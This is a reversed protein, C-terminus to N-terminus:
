PKPREGNHPTGFDSYDVKWGKAALYRDLFGHEESLAIYIENYASAFALVEERLRKVADISTAVTSSPNTVVYGKEFNEDMLFSGQSIHQWIVWYHDLHSRVELLVQCSNAISHLRLHGAKHLFKITKGPGYNARYDKQPDYIPQKCVVVMMLNCLATFSSYLSSYAAKWNKRVEFFRSAPSNHRNVEHVLQEYFSLAEMLCTYVQYNLLSIAVLEKCEDNSLPSGNSNQWHLKAEHSARLVERFHWWFPIHERSFPKFMEEIADGGYGGQSFDIMKQM